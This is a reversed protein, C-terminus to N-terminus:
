GVRGLVGHAPLQLRLRGKLTEAILLWMDVNVQRAGNIRATSLEMYVIDLFTLLWQKITLTHPPKWRVAVMKKAATLGALVIRKQCKSIQLSSTDNLLVVPITASVTGSVFTSVESAVNQWFRAVPLCEWFMHLFTGMTKLSCLTCSADGIMKMLCLRRPTLYTRHVFNYHIQQHDPNRSALKVNNWVRSWDFDLELGPFYEM